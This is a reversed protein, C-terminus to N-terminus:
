EGGGLRAAIRDAAQALLGDYATIIASMGAGDVPGEFSELGHRDAQRGGSSQWFLNLRARGDRGATLELVRIRLRRDGPRDAEAPYPLVADRGLRNALHQLLVQEVQGALPGAWQDLENLELRNAGARTVLQTRDLHDAIEVPGILLRGEFPRPAGAPQLPPLTLTYYRAAGSPGPPLACGALLLAGTAILLGILTRM